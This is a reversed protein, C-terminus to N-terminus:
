PTRIVHMPNKAMRHGYMALQWPMAETWEQEKLAMREYGDDGEPVYVLTHPTFRYYLPNGKGGHRSKGIDMHLKGSRPQSPDRGHDPNYITFVFDATEEIAGSDRATDIDFKQGFAAGRSVQHPMLIPIRRDKAVEKVAMIAESTKEYRDKGPFGRAMYGLYDIAVCDPPAGVADEYDDLIEHFEDLSVRNKDTMMLRNQWYDITYDHIVDNFRQLEREDTSIPATTLDYFANIRQARHFWDGRTQELSLFLFRHEKQEPVMSMRHMSNLLWMTKGVNTKALLVCVQGPLLGPDILMDLKEFGFKLGVAGQVARWEEAAEQVTILLTPTSARLHADFDVADHHQEVIWASIDNGDDDDGSPGPPMTAVKVRPGLSERIKEAGKRGADDNDFVVWLRKVDKIQWNWSDQWQSSGPVGIAHHGMQHALMCDFEGETLVLETAGRIADVNYIRQTWGHPQRYKGGLKKERIGVCTPGVFYPITVVGDYFPEYTGDQKRTLFGARSIQQEDHGLSKLHGIVSPEGWGLKFHSITPPDLGREDTLWAVVQPVKSLHAHFYSAASRIIDYHIDGLDVTSASVPDGFHRRIKSLSGTEGCLHCMFLGPIDADPETNIYLRGRKNEPENCFICPTNVNRKDATKLHMGKSLLYARVDETM